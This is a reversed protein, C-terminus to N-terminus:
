TSWERLQSTIVTCKSVKAVLPEVYNVKCCVRGHKVGYTGRQTRAFHCELDTHRVSTSQTESCNAPEFRPVLGGSETHIMALVHERHNAQTFLRIGVMVGVYM